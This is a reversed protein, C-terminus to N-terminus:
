RHHTAFHCVQGTPTGPKDGRAGRELEWRQKDRGSAADQRLGRARCKHSSHLQPSFSSLPLLTPTTSPHFNMRPHTSTLRISQAKCQHESASPISAGRSHVAAKFPKSRYVKSFVRTKPRYVVGATLFICTEQLNCAKSEKVQSKSAMPKQVMPDCM